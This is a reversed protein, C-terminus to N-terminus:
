SKRIIYDETAKVINLCSEMGEVEIMEINSFRIMEGVIDSSKKDVCKSKVGSYVIKKAGVSIIKRVCLECPRGTIYFTSGCIITGVRAANVIAAEESHLFWSYKEPRTKPVRMDNSGRPPGNYGVSLITKDESVVISGHKTDPDLSRQAVMFALSLFYDEWLPRGYSDFGKKSM